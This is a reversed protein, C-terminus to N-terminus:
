QYPYVFYNQSGRVKVNEVLTAQLKKAVAIVVIEDKDIIQPIQYVPINDVVDTEPIGTVWFCKVNCGLKTLKDKVLKGVNGAGYIVVNKGKVAECIIYYEQELLAKLKDWAEITNDYGSKEIVWTMEDIAQWNVGDAGFWDCLNIYQRLWSDVDIYDSHKEIIKLIAVRRADIDNTICEKLRYVNVLSEAVYGIKVSKVLRIVYEYDQLRPLSEDFMGVQKIISRHIVLTQTSVINRVKLVEAINEENRKKDHINEPIYKVIKQDYLTHACYCVKYENRKMYEIQKSLKEELWEDDSDQFAIYEGKAEKIGVNRAVNAGMCQPLRILSIREDQYQKVKDFTGDASGDDVVIVEINKYTQNLVSDIARLITGERNYTPIIVSVLDNM